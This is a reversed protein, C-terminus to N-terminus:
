HVYTFTQMTNREQKAVHYAKEVVNYRRAWYSKVDDTLTEMFHKEFETPSEFFLNIPERRGEDGMAWCVKFYLSEAHTGVRHPTSLGTIANKIRHNPTLSTEYVPVQVYKRGMTERLRLPVERRIRIQGEKSLLSVRHIGRGGKSPMVPESYVSPDSGYDYEDHYIFDLGDGGESVVDPEAVAPFGPPPATNTDVILTTM